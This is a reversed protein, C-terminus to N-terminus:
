HLTWSFRTHSSHVETDSDSCCLFDLIQEELECVNTHCKECKETPCHICIKKWWTDEENMWLFLQCFNILLILVTRDHQGARIEFFFIDHQFVLFSYSFAWCVKKWVGLHELKEPLNMSTPKGIYHTFGPKQLHRKFKYQKKKSVGLFGLSGEKSTQTSNGPSPDGQDERMWASKMACRWRHISM